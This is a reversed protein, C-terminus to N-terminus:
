VGCSRGSQCRDYAPVSKNYVSDWYADLAAKAKEAAQREAEAWKAAAKAAEERKRKGRNFLGIIGRIGAGIGAIIGGWIGGTAFGAAINGIETM